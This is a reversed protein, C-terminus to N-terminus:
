AIALAAAGEKAQARLLTSFAGGRTTLEDWSGSEVIRGAELVHIVDAHRIATLRHTIILVTVRGGLQRVAEIIADENVADLLSTAEDLV